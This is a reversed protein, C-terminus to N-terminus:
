RRRPALQPTTTSTSPPRRARALFHSAWAFSRVISVTSRRRTRAPPPISRPCGGRPPSSPSACRSPPPPSPPSCPRPTSTATTPASGSGARPPCRTPPSPSATPSTSRSSSASARRRGPAPAHHRLRGPLGPRPPAAEPLGRLARPLHRGARSRPLAAEALHLAARDHKGLSRALEATTLRMPLDAPKAHVADEFADLASRRPGRPSRPLPAGLRRCLEFTVETRVPGEPIHDVRELMRRYAQELQSWEQRDALVRAVLALPELM